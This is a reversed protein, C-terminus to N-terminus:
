IGKIDSYRIPFEYQIFGVEVMHQRKVVKGNVLIELIIESGYPKYDGLNFAVRDLAKVTRQYKVSFPLKYDKLEVRGKSTHWHVIDALVEINNAPYAKLEIDVKQPYTKEIIEDKDCSNLLFVGCTVAVFLYFFRKM